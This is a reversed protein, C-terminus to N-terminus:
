YRGAAFRPDATGPMLDCLMTANVRAQAEAQNRSLEKIKAIKAPSGGGSAVEYILPGLGPDDIPLQVYFGGNGLAVQPTPAPIKDLVPIDPQQGLPSDKAIQWILSNGGIDPLDVKAYREKELELQWAHMDRLLSKYAPDNALNRLEYPDERLDYLEFDQDDLHENLSELGQLGGTLAHYRAFKLRPTMLARMHKKWPIGGGFQETVAWNEDVSALAVDKVSAHAPDELIPVLSKGRLWPYRAVADPVGALELCTPV